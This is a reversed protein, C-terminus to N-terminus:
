EKLRVVVKEELEYAKKDIMEVILKEEIESRVLMYNHCKPCKVIQEKPKGYIDFGPSGV